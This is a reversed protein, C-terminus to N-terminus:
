RLDLLSQGRCPFASTRVWGSAMLVGYPPLSRRRLAARNRAHGDRAGAEVASVWSNRRIFELGDFMSSEVGVLVLKTAVM